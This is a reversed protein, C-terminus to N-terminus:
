GQKDEASESPAEQPLTCLGLPAPGTHEAREAQAASCARSHSRLQENAYGALLHEPPM